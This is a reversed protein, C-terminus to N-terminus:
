VRGRPEKKFLKVGWVTLVDGGDCDVTSQDGPKIITNWTQHRRFWVEEASLLDNRREWLLSTQAARCLFM